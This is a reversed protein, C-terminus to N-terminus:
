LHAGLDPSELDLEHSIQDTDWRKGLPRVCGITINLCIWSKGHGRNSNNEHITPYAQYIEDAPSVKLISILAPLFGM